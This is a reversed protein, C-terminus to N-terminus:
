PGVQAAIGGYVLSNPIVTQWILSLQDTASGFTFQTSLLASQLLTAASSLTAQLYSGTGIQAPSVAGTPQFIVPEWSILVDGNANRAVAPVTVAVEAYGTFTPQTLDSYVTNRSLTPNGTFLGIKWASFVNAVATIIDNLALLFANSPQAQVM